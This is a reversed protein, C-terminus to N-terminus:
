LLWIRHGIHSSKDIFVVQALQPWSFLSPELNQAPQPLVRIAPPALFFLDLFCFVFLEDFIGMLGM